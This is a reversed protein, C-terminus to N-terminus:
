LIFDDIRKAVKKMREAKRLFDKKLEDVTEEITEGRLFYRTGRKIVFGKEIFKNLHYVAAAQTVGESEMIDKTKVGGKLNNSLVHLFISFALRDKKPSIGLYDLLIGMEKNLNLTHGKPLVVLQNKSDTVESGSKM